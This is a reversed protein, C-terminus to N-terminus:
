KAKKAPTPRKIKKMESIKVRETEAKIKDGELKLSSKQKEPINRLAQKMLEDMGKQKQITEKMEKEISKGIADIEGQEKQLQSKIKGELILCEKKIRGEENLKALEAQAKMEASQQNAAMNAEIDAQKERAIERKYSIERAILTQRAQKLNDMERLYMSDSLGIKGAALAERVDLYFDAWEQPGPQRSMMMGYETYAIDPSAEHYQRIAPNFGKITGRRRKTEQSLLLLQHSAREYLYEHANYLYEMDLDGTAQSAKMVQVALRNQVETSEVMTTGTMSELLQLSTQITNFYDAITIGSQHFKMADGRSQDHRNVGSRSPLTQTMEMFQYVEAADWVKGGRGMAVAEFATFDIERIGTWGRALDGKVKNWMANIMFLPETMQSCFSVPRGNKFNTAFTKIPLSNEVLNTRPYPKREYNYVIDSDIIWTGGYVSTYSPAFIKSDGNKSYRDLNEKPEWNFPKDMLIKSGHGNKRTVYKRQDESLFYFRMVPIYDLNDYGNMQYAYNNTTFSSNKIRHKAAIEQLEAQTYYQGAEKILQNVTICEIFFSYEQDEFDDNDVYSGGWYKPNIRDIRPIGNADHYTHLHGFGTVVIDWDVQRMKQKFRNISQVLKLTLEGEIERQLKPNATIDQILEDPYEPLSSIDIGEFAAQLPIGMENAFDKMKYVAGIVGRWDEKEDISKLDIAELSIDYGIRQMKAVARNIYKPALNLIKPDIYALSEPGDSLQASKPNRFGFLKRLPDVSQNGQALEILSDFYDDEYFIRSGYRNDSYYMAKAAQLGYAPLEKDKPNCFEPPFNFGNM